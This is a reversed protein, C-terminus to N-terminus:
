LLIRHYKQASQSSPPPTSRTSGRNVLRHYPLSIRDVIVGEAVAVGEVEVEALALADVEGTLLARPSIHPLTTTKVRTRRRPCRAPVRARLTRVRHCRRRVPQQLLTDRPLCRVGGAWAPGQGWVAGADWADVAEVGPRYQLYLPLLDGLSSPGALKRLRQRRQCCSKRRRPLGTRTLRLYSM